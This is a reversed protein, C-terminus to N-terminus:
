TNKQTIQTTIQTEIDNKMQQIQTQYTAQQYYPIKALENAILTNGQSRINAM